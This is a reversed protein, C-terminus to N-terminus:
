NAAADAVLGSSTITASTFNNDDGLMIVPQCNPTCALTTRADGQFVTVLGAQSQVVEVITDAIPNGVADLIILNTRGYGRGTLILTQPDQITVDAIGPNGVIITQAPSAIRLIRAMNVQVTVYGSPLINGGPLINSGPSINEAALALPALFVVMLMGFIAALFRSAPKQQGKTCFRPLSKPQLLLKAQPLNAHPLNADPLFEAMLDAGIRTNNLEAGM